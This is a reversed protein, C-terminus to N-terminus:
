DDSIEAEGSKLDLLTANSLKVALNKGLGNKAEVEQTQNDGAIEDGIWFEAHIPKESNHLDISFSIEQNVKAGDIPYETTTGNISSTSLYVVEDRIAFRLSVGNELQDDAFAIIELLSKPEPLLFRIFVNRESESSDVDAGFNITASGSVKDEELIPSGSTISYSRNFIQNEESSADSDSGCSSTLLALYCSFFTISIKKIRM